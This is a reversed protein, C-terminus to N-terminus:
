TPVLESEHVLTPELVHGDLVKASVIAFAADRSTLGQDVFYRAAAITGYTSAGAIVIARRKACCPNEGAVILGYDKVIVEDRTEAILERDHTGDFWKIASAASTPVNSYHRRLEELLEVTVRNNKGGGLCIVDRELTDGVRDSSLLVKQDIRGYARQLSPSIAALARLQGVGTGERYYKGTHELFSRAVFISLTKPDHLRWLARAPVKDRARKFLFGSVGGLAAAVGATLLGIWIEGVTTVATLM